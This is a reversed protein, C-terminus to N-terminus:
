SPMISVPVEAEARRAPLPEGWGYPEDSVAVAIVAPLEDIPRGQECGWPRAHFTTSLSRSM